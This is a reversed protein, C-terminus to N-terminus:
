NRGHSVPHSFPEHFSRKVHCGHFVNWFYYYYGSYYPHELILAIVQRLIGLRRSISVLRTQVASSAEYERADVIDFM